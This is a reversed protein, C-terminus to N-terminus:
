RASPIQSICTEHGIVSVEGTDGGATGWGGKGTRAGVLLPYSLAVYGGIRIRTKAAVSAAVRAGNDFGIIVWQQVTALALPSLAASELARELIRQRRAEKQRCHYRMVIHGAAAFRCVLGRMLPSDWDGAELGHALLIGIPQICSSDLYAAPVTLMSTCTENQGALQVTLPQPKRAVTLISAICLRTPGGTWPCTQICFWFAVEQGALTRSLWGPHPSSPDPAM